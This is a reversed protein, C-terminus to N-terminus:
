IWFLFYWWYYVRWLEVLLLLIGAIIWVVTIKRDLKTLALFFGGGLVFVGLAWLPFGYLTPNTMWTTISTTYFTTLGYMFDYLNVLGMILFVAAAIGFAYVVKKNEEFIEGLDLNFKVTDGGCVRKEGLDKSIPVDKRPRDM